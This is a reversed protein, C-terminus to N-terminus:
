GEYRPRMHTRVAQMMGCWMRHRMGAITMACAGWFSFCMSQNLWHALGAVAGCGCRADGIANSEGVWRYVKM